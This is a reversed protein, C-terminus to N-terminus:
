QGDRDNERERRTRKRRLRAPRGKRASSGVGDL